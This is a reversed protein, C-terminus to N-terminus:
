ISMGAPTEPNGALRTLSSGLIGPLCCRLRAVTALMVSAPEPNAWNELNENHLQPPRSIFPGLPRKFNSTRRSHFHGRQPCWSRKCARMTLWGHWFHAACPVEGPGTHIVNISSTRGFAAIAWTVGDVIAHWSGSRGYNGDRKPRERERNRLSAESIV